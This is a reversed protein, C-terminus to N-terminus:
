KIEIHDIKNFYQLFVPTILLILDAFHLSQRWVAQLIVFLYRRGFAWM